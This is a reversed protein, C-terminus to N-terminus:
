RDIGNVERQQSARTIEPNGKKADPAGRLINMALHLMIGFNEPTNGNRIRSKDQGFTVDLM